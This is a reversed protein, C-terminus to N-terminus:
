ARKTGVEVKSQSKTLCVRGKPGAAAAKTTEECPTTALRYLADRLARCILEVFRHTTLEKEPMPISFEDLLDAYQRGRELCGPGAEELLRKELKQYGLRLSECYNETSDLTEETHKSILRFKEVEESLRQSETTLRSIEQKALFTSQRATTLEESM